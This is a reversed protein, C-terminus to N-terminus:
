LVPGYQNCAFIEAGYSAALLSFWGVNAGVDLMVPAAVSKEESEKMISSIVDTM